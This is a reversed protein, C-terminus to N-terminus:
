IAPLAVTMPRALLATLAEVPKRALASWFMPAMLPLTFTSPLAVTIPRALLATLAEVPKRELAQWDTPEMSLLLPQSYDRGIARVAERRRVAALRRSM